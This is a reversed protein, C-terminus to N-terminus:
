RRFRLATLPGTEPETQEQAGNRRGTLLLEKVLRHAEIDAALVTAAEDM